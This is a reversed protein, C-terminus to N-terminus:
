RIPSGGGGESPSPVSIVPGLGGRGSPVQPTSQQTFGVPIGTGVADPEVFQETTYNTPQLGERLQDLVQTLSPDQGGGEGPQPLDNAMFGIFITTADILQGRGELETAIEIRELHSREIGVWNGADGLVLITDPDWEAERPPYNSEMTTGNALRLTYTEALAPLAVLAFAGFALVAVLAATSFRTTGTMATM